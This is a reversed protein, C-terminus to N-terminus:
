SMAARRGGAEAHPEARNRRRWAGPTEGTARRFLKCFHAQDAFGCALAVQTLPEATARMMREAHALRLRIIYEHPTDRFTEKFARCFYSVSLSVQDALEDLRMARTLHEGLYRELKRRQWPALGGRVAVSAPQAQPTLLSVLRVAAARAGEPDAAAGIDEILRMAEPSFGARGDRTFFAPLPRMAGDSHQAVVAADRRCAKQAVEIHSMM